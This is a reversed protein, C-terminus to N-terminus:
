WAVDFADKLQKPSVSCYIQTTDLRSHGLLEQIHRIDMKKDNLYFTAGSHRLSHFHLEPLVKKVERQLTRISCTIPLYQLRPIIPKMIPVFRDKKGKGQRIHIFGRDLDCDKRDLKVVESVRMCQYFGLMFSLRIKKNKVKRVASLFEDESITNPLKRM